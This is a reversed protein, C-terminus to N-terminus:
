YRSCYWVLPPLLLLPPAPRSSSHLVTWSSQKRSGRWPEGRTSRSTFSHYGPCRQIHWLWPLRGAPPPGRDICNRSCRTCLSCLCRQAASAPQATGNHGMASGIHRCRRICAQLAPRCTGAAALALEAAMALGPRGELRGGAPQTPGTSYLFQVCINAGFSQPCFIALTQSIETRPSSLVSLPFLPHEALSCFPLPFLM